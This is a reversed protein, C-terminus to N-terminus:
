LRYISHSVYVMKLKGESTFPDKTYNGIILSTTMQDNYTICASSGDCGNLNELKKCFAVNLKCEESSNTLITCGSAIKFTWYPPSTLNEINYHSAPAKCVDSFYPDSAVQQQFTGEFESM